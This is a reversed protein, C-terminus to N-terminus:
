NQYANSLYNSVLEFNYFNSCDYFSGTKPIDIVYDPEIGGDINEGKDDVLCLYSSRVYILGDATTEVNIACSGGGSTQGMIKYGLNKMTAPFLNGCSFSYGSTLVGVNFNFSNAEEIDLADYKGDLNIDITFKETVLYDNFTDLMTFDAKAGNFLGILGNLADSNGGGNIALDLVINEYNEEKAKYLCDRVFAFTDTSVPIDGEGKYYKDWALYDIDFSNFIIYATKTTPDKKFSYNGLIGQNYRSANVSASLCSKGYSRERVENVLPVFEEYSYYDDLAQNFGDFSALNVTHGGDYLGYFLAAYGLYYESKNQSLLFEKIKPHYTTLLGDLGLSLLYEDGFLLQKTYGRLNDFTFCLENYTYNVLDLPRPTRLNNHSDYYGIYSDPTLTEGLVGQYDIAYVESGNYTINYLAFGGAIKSLFTLPVYANKKDEYINISYKNLNVSRVNIDSFVVDDPRVFTKTSTSIFGPHSTFSTLSNSSFINKSPNFALYEEGISYRYEDNENTVNLETEFFEKYYKEVSIYPVNPTEDYFRLSIKSPEDKNNFHVNVDRDEYKSVKPEEITDEPTTDESPTPNVGVCSSLIFSFSFLTIFLNKKYMALIIAVIYYFADTM